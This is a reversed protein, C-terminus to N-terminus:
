FHADPSGCFGAAIATARLNQIWEDLFAKEDHTLIESIPIIGAAVCGYM